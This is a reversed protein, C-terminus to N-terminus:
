SSFRKQLLNTRELIIKTFPSKPILIKIKEMMNLLETKVLPVSLTADQAMNELHKPYLLEFEYKSGIKMAMKKFLEPYHITSILDYFPALRTSNNQYLISFNKGHADNNGIILNFIIGQLLMKIDTVPNSSIERILEFCQQISPGGERQYKIEPPFGLAQCFDEQHLREVGHPTVKRDYRELLLYSTGRIHFIQAEAINLGLKKALHLCFCENEILSIFERNIPKLIHTRAAGNKPIAIAGDQIAIPLKDQAGALSLRVGDEDVIMPRQHITELLKILGDKNLKQYEPKLQELITKHPLLAIAGACEGGIAELLAFDNKDSIGLRKALSVRLSAEPLLGSFFPRCQKSEFIGAELPLSSSLPSSLSHKLYSDVYAFTMEGQHIHLYGALQQHIYVDLKYSKM